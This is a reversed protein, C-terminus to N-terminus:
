AGCCKKFKKGSGCPCLENRGTRPQERMYPVHGHVHGDVYYWRGEHMAFSADERLEQPTDKITFHATFSVTGSTQTEGPSASHVVLETLTVHSAWQAIEQESIGSRHEPHTSDVLFAYNRLCHATFRARMLEEPTRALAAGQIIPECCSSLSKESGCFCAETHMM